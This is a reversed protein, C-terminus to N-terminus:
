LTRESLILGSHSVVISKTWGNESPALGGGNAQFELGDCINNAIEKQNNASDVDESFKISVVFTLEM